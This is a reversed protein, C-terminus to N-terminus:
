KESIYDYIDSNCVNKLSKEIKQLKQKYENDFKSYRFSDDVSDPNIIKYYFSYKDSLSGYKNFLYRSMPFLEGSVPNRFQPNSKNVSYVDICKRIYEKASNSMGFFKSTIVRPKLLNWVKFYESDDLNLKLAQQKKRIWSDFKLCYKSIYFAVDSEGSSTLSPNVYHLDYTRHTGCNIFKCLPEYIPNRNSGVNRKWESKLLNYLQTEYNVPTFWMDNDSKPLFIIGHFHPRHFKGGYESVVMYKMKLNHFFPLKRLRKFMKQVDSFDAFSHEYGNVNLKRIMSDQYTLTFFFLYNDMSELQCRQILYLQKLKLCQPCVGCSVYLYQSSTDYLPSNALVRGKHLRSKNKILIPSFCM